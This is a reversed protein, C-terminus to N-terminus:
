RAATTPATSCSPRSAPARRRRRLGLAHGARQLAQVPEHVRDPQALRRPRARKGGAARRAAARRRLLDRLLVRRERHRLRPPREARVAGAMRRAADGRRDPQGALLRLATAHAGLHRRRDAVLRRRLQTGPRQQCVGDARRRAAGRGRLDSLVSEPLRRDRGARTPDIVTQALAFLAERSGNVPLVQAGADLTVGYRRQVWHACAERLAPEGATAPYNALGPLADTLADAILQPRRCPAARRHGPQDAPLGANPRIDRTLERLREFPYPHLQALLPNM